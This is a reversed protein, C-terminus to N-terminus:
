NFIFQNLRSSASNVPQSLMRQYIPLAVIMAEVHKHDHCQGCACDNTDNAVQESDDPKPPTKERILAAGVTDPAPRISRPLHMTSTDFDLTVRCSEFFDRGFHVEHLLTPLALIRTHIRIEGAVLKAEYRTAVHNRVDGYVDKLRLNASGVAKLDLTRAIDERIFSLNSGTDLFVRVERGQVVADIFRKNLIRM